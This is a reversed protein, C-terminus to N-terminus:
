EPKGLAHKHKAVKRLTDEWRKEDPDCELGRAAQKFREAQSMKDAHGDDNGIM